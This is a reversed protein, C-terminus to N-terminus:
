IRMEDESSRLWYTAIMEVKFYLSLSLRTSYSELKVDLLLFPMLLKTQHERGFGM